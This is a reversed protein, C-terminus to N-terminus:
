NLSAAFFRYGGMFVQGFLVSANAGGVAGNAMGFAGDEL